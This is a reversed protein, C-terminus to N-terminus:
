HPLCNASVTTQTLPLLWHTVLYPFTTRGPVSKEPANPSRSQPLSSGEARRWRTRPATQRVQCLWFLAVGVLMQGGCSCGEAGAPSYLLLLYLLVVICVPFVATYLVHRSLGSNAHSWQFGTNIILKICCTIVANYEFIICTVWHLWQELQTCARQQEDQVRSLHRKSIQLWKNVNGGARRFGHRM